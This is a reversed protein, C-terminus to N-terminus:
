GNLRDREYVLEGTDEDSERKRKYKNYFNTCQKKVKPKEEEKEM